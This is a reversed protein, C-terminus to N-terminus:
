PPSSPTPPSPQRSGDTGTGATYVDAPTNDDADGDPVFECGDSIFTADGVVAPAEATGTLWAAADLSAGSGDIFTALGAEGGGCDNDVGDCTTSPATATRTTAATATGTPPECAEESRGLDGFGDGDADLYFVPTVHVTGM